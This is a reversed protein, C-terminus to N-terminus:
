SRVGRRPSNPRAPHPAGLGPRVVRAAAVENAYLRFLPPLRYRGSTSTTQLVGADVVMELLDEAAPVTAHLQDAVQRATLYPGPFRGLGLFARRSATDLRDCAAGLTERIDLDGAKLYDLRHSEDRLQAAAHALSWGPRVAMRVAIVRLALPLHDCLEAIEAAAGPDALVEDDGVIERLVALSEEAPLAGIRIREVGDLGALRARSTIVTQSGASEVLMPRVQTEETVNDLLVLMRREALLSRLLAARQATGAPMVGSSVGLAHLFDGVVEHPSPAVPDSSLNAYLVGDPFRSQHQHTWRAVLASKGAGLPGTVLLPPAAGTGAGAVAELRALERHRGAFRRFGPPLQYPRPVLPEAARAGGAAPGPGSATGTTTRLAHVTARWRREWAAAEGGCAKVFALTVRLTPLRAGSAAGSLVSASVSARRSLERYSPSGAARRLQRLDAAFAAVPGAGRDLPLEPRGM